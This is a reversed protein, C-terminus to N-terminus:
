NKKSMIMNVKQGFEKKNWKKLENIYILINFLFVILIGFIFFIIDYVNSFGKFYGILLNIIFFLNMIILFKNKIIRKLIEM